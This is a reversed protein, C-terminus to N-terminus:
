QLIDQIDQPNLDELQKFDVGSKELGSFVMIGILLTMSISAATLIVCIWAIRKADSKDSFFYRVAFILGFPPLFFCILYAWRKQKGSVANEDRELASMMLEAVDISKNKKAMERYQGLEKELEKERSM